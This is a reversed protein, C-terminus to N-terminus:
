VRAEARKRRREAAYRRKYDKAYNVLTKAMTGVDKPWESMDQNDAADVVAIFLNEVFDEDIGLTRAALETNSDNYYYSRHDPKEPKCHRMVHAGIACVGGCNKMWKGREDCNAGDYPSWGVSKTRIAWRIDAKLIAEVKALKAKTM